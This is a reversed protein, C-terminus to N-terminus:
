HTIDSYIKSSPVSVQFAVFGVNRVTRGHM